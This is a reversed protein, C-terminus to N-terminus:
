SRYDANITVYEHSLDSTWVHHKQDGLNLNINIEIESKEFEHKGLDECYGSAPEGQAILALSNIKIDVKDLDLQEVQAKGVAALIRGWNPDSAYLATKVLPSHAVSYAISKADSQSLANRVSVKVFKTAGEGDRVVSTALKILLSELGAYLQQSAKSAVDEIKDMDSKGTAILILADNTSTDSDVTIRNFSADNASLLLERLVAKDVVADTAVYALMTAMNPCIMGSGKAIGTLTVTHGDVIVRESVAKAITDTTMISEAAALWNDEILGDVLLPTAHLMKDLPLQEGIVGTSFPLVQNEALGLEEAVKACTSRAAQMGQKGTGANANGANILLARPEASDMNSKALTVPAACYRNKTFVGAVSSGPSLSILAIDNRDEYRIGAATAALKVGAIPYLDKPQNLGVAM